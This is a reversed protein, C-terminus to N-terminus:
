IKMAVKCYIEDEVYNVVHGLEKLFKAEKQFHMVRDSRILILM